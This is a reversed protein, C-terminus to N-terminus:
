PLLYHQVKSEWFYLVAKYLSWKWYKMFIYPSGLFYFVPYVFTHVHVSL